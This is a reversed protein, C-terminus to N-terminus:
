RSHLTRPHLTHNTFTSFFTLKVQKPKAGDERTHTHRALIINLSSHGRGYTTQTRDNPLPFFLLDRRLIFIVPLFSFRTGYVQMGFLHVPCCSPHGAAITRVIMGASARVEHKVAIRANELLAGRGWFFFSTTNDDNDHRLIATNHRVVIYRVSTRLVRRSIPALSFGFSPDDKSWSMKM